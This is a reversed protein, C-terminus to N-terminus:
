DDDDTLARIVEYLRWWDAASRPTRGRLQLERLAPILDPDPKYREIFERFVASDNPQAADGLAAKLMDLLRLDFASALKQLTTETPNAGGRELQALYPKSLGARDSLEQLSWRRRERMVRVWPGIARLEEGTM